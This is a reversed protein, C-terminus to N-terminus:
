VNIGSLSLNSETRNSLQTEIQQKSTSRPVVDSVQTDESLERSGYPQNTSTRGHLSNRLSVPSTIEPDSNSRKLTQQQQQNPNVVLIKIFLDVGKKATDNINNRARDLFIRATSPIPTDFISSLLDTTGLPNDEMFTRIPSKRYENVPNQTDKEIARNRSSLLYNEYIYVLTTELNDIPPKVSDVSNRSVSELAELPGSVIYQAAPTKMISEGVQNMKQNVNSVLSKTGRLATTFGSTISTAVYSRTINTTPPPAARSTEALEPEKQSLSTNSIRSDNGDQQELKENSIPKKPNQSLSENSIPKRPNTSLTELQIRYSTLYVSMRSLVM